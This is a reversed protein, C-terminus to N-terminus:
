NGAPVSPVKFEESGEELDQKEEGVTGWYKGGLMLYCNM